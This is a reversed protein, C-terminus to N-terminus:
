PKILTIRADRSQGGILLRCFYVGTPLKEGGANRGDWAVSHQGAELRADILTRVARGSGDYVVLAAPQAVPLDFRITTASSFPNPGASCPLTQPRAAAPEAMALSLPHYHEIPYGPTMDRGQFGAFEPPYRTARFVDCIAQAPDDGQELPTASVPNQYRWVVQSDATVERFNGGNGCCILTGGARLREV